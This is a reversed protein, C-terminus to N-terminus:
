FAPRSELTRIIASLCASNMDRHQRDLDAFTLRVKVFKGATSAIGVFSMQEGNLFHQGYLPGHRAFEWPTTAAPAQELAVALARKAESEQEQNSDEGCVGYVYVAAKGVPSGYFLSVDLPEGVSSNQTVSDFHLWALDYTLSLSTFPCWIVPSHRPIQVNRHASFDFYYAVRETVVENASFQRRSLTVKHVGVGNPAESWELIRYASGRGAEISKITQSAAFVIAEPSMASADRFTFPNDSHGFGNLTPIASVDFSLPPHVIKTM